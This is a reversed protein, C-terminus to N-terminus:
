QSCCPHSPSLSSISCPKQPSTTSFFSDNNETEKEAEIPEGVIKKLRKIEEQQFKNKKKEQKFLIKGRKARNKWTQTSVKPIAPVDYSTWRLDDFEAKLKNTIMHYFRKTRIHFPESNNDLLHLNQPEYKGNILNFNKSLLLLAEGIECNNKNLNSIFIAVKIKKLGNFTGDQLHKAFRGRIFITKGIYLLDSM